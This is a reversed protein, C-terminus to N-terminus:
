NQTPSIDLKWIVCICGDWPGSVVNQRSEVLCSGAVLNWSWSGPVPLGSIHRRDSVLTKSCLLLYCQSSSVTLDSLNRSVDKVNNYLLVAPGPSTEVDPFRLELCAYFLLYLFGM